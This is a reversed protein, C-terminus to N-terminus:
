SFDFHWLEVNSRYAPGFYSGADAGQIFIGQLSYVYNAVFCKKKKLTMLVPYFHSTKWQPILVLGLAKCQNMYALTRLVM